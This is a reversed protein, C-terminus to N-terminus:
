IFKKPTLVYPNPKNARKSDIVRVPEMGPKWYKHETAQFFGQNTNVVFFSWYHNPDRMYAPISQADAFREAATPSTDLPTGHLQQRLQANSSTEFRIERPEEPSLPRYPGRDGSGMWTCTAGGFEWHQESILTGGGPGPAYERDAWVATGMFRLSITLTTEGSSSIRSGVTEFVLWAGGASSTSGGRCRLESAAPVVDAPKAVPRVKRNTQSSATTVAASFLLVLLATLTPMLRKM